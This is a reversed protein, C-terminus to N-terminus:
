FGHLFLQDWPTLQPCDGRRKLLGKERLEEKDLGPFKQTSILESLSKRVLTATLFVAKLPFHFGCSLIHANSVLQVKGGM